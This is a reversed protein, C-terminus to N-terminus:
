HKSISSSPSDEKTLCFYHIVGRSANAISQYRCSSYDKVIATVESLRLLEEFVKPPMTTVLIFLGKPQLVQWMNKLYLAPTGVSNVDERGGLGEKKSDWGGSMIADLTGKDIVASCTGHM